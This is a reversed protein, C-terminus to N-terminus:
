IKKDLQKGLDLYPNMFSFWTDTDAEPLNLGRALFITMMMFTNNLKSDSFGEIRRMINSLYYTRTTSQWGDLDLLKTLSRTDDVTYKKQLHQFNQNLQWVANMHYARRPFTPELRRANYFSGRKVEPNQRLERECQQFLNNFRDSYVKEILHKDSLEQKFMHHVYPTPLEYLEPDVTMGAHLQADELLAFLIRRNTM